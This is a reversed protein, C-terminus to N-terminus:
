YYVQYNYDIARNLDSLDESQFNFKSFPIIDQYWKYYNTTTDNADELVTNDYWATLLSITSIDSNDWGLVTDFYDRFDLRSVSLRMEIYVEVEQSSDVTYMINTVQTGDLYRVHLIPNTDFSKFFYGVYGNAFTKRGFYTDRLDRDLDNTALVYRFPVIDEYTNTTSNSLKPSIRDTTSVTLVETSVSGVGSRGAAWLCTIPTNYPQTEPYAPLSNDLALESNYTPLVVAPSVGFQKCATSQSGPVLIKNHYEGLIKGTDHDKMIIKTRKPGGLGSLLKIENPGFAINDRINAKDKILM